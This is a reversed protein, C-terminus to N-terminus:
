AAALASTPPIRAAKAAPSLGSLGGILVTAGLGGAVAWLPVAVPWGQGIAFVLTVVVGIVVGAVGGLFSLLLSEVLFQDRVDRRRAGLARRVGVEARRELVTIVMTNAVGIGGVLLAVGGIGVLLGTFSDDTANKAALADSPRTVAVDAPSAPSVTRPLQDRVAAVRDPDARTYVASPHGDWGLDAALGRPVFVQNDLDEALQLPGLVGVVQVWRGGLWVRTDATVRDIGLARAATAGLVVQAPAASGPDLWRGAAVSGGLVEPVDGEAGLVGIGKTEATPVYPTRYVRADEVKGVGAAELVDDQRQVSEVATAPLPVQEAFSEAQTVTLVNTGLADLVRDLAAKSSSSIGVVAIMAAIGIAIGLASLVVRTPRTRLGFVGLRLLDGTGLTRRASM